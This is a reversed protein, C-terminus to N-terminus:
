KLLFNILRELRVVFRTMKVTFRRCTCTGEALQLNCTRLVVKKISYIMNAYMEAKISFTMKQM